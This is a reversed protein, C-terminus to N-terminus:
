RTMQLRPPMHKPTAKASSVHMNHVQSAAFGGCHMQVIFGNATDIQRRAVAVQQECPRNVMGGADPVNAFQPAAVAKSSDSVGLHAINLNCVCACVFACTYTYM